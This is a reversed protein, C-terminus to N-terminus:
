KSGRPPVGFEADTRSYMPAAPARHPQPPPVNVVLTCSVLDSITQRSPLTFMMGLEGLLPALVIVATANMRFALATAASGLLYLLLPRFGARMGAQALSLEVGGVASVTRIDLIRMGPTQGSWLRYCSAHYVAYLILALELEKANYGLNGALGSLVGTAMVVLVFDV